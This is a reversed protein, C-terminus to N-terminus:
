FELSLENLKLVFKCNTSKLYPSRVAMYEFIKNPLILSSTLWELWANILGDAM